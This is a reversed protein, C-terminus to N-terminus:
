MSVPAAALLSVAQAPIVEGNVTPWAEAPLVVFDEDPSWLLQKVITKLPMPFNENSRQIDTFYTLAVAADEVLFVGGSDHKQALDGTFLRDLSDIRAAVTQNFLESQLNAISLGTQYLM